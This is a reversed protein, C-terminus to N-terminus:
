LLKSRFNELFTYTISTETKNISNSIMRYLLLNKFSSVTIIHTSTNHIKKQIHKELKWFLITQTRDYYDENVLLVCHIRSRGNDCYTM